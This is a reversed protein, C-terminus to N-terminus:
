KWSPAWFSQVYVGFTWIPWFLRRFFNKVPHSLIGIPWSLSKFPWNNSATSFTNLGFQGLNSGLSLGVPNSMLGLPGSLGSYGESFFGFLIPYFGVQGLYGGPPRSILLTYWPRYSLTLGSLTKYRKQRWFHCDELHVFFAGLFVCNKRRKELTTTGLWNLNGLNVGRNSVRCKRWTRPM